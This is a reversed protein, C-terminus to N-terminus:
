SKIGAPIDIFLCLGLNFLAHIDNLIKHEAKKYHEKYQNEEQFKISKQVYHIM